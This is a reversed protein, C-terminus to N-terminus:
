GHQLNQPPDLQQTIDPATPLASFMHEARSNRRKVWFPLRQQFDKGVPTKRIAVAITSAGLNYQICLSGAVYNVPYRVHKAHRGAGAKDIGITPM